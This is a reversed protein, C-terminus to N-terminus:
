IKLWQGGSGLGGAGQAGVAPGSAGFGEDGSDGAEWCPWHPGALLLLVTNPNKVLFTASTSTFFVDTLHSWYLNLLSFSNCRMFLLVELLHIVFLPLVFTILTLQGKPVKCAKLTTFSFIIFFSMDLLSLSSILDNLIQHNGCKICVFFNHFM